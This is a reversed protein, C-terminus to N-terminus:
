RRLQPSPHPVPRGLSESPPWPLTTHRRNEITRAHGKARELPGTVGWSRDLVVFCLVRRHSTVQNLSFLCEIFLREGILVAERRDKKLCPSLSNQGFLWVLRIIYSITHGRPFVSPTDWDWDDTDIQFLWSLSFSLFCSGNGARYELALCLALSLFFCVVCVYVCVCLRLCVCAGACAWVCVCACMCMCVCLCVSVCVCECVYVFVRTCAGARECARACVGVWGGVCVCVRIDSPAFTM